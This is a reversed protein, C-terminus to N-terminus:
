TSSPTRGAATTSTWPFSGRILPRRRSGKRSPFSTGQSTIRPRAPSSSGQQNGRGIQLPENRGLLQRYNGRVHGGDRGDAQRAQRALDLKKNADSSAGVSVGGGLPLEIDWNTPPDPEEPTPEPEPPTVVILTCLEEDPNEPCEEEPLPLQPIPDNESGGNVPPLASAMAATVTLALVLLASALAAFRRPSLHSTTRPSDM